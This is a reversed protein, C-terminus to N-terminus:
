GDVMQNETSEGTGVQPCRECNRGWAKGVTCCCVEQTLLTPLAHECGRAESVMRFCQGQEAPSESLLLCFLKMHFCDAKISCIPIGNEFSHKIDNLNVSRSSCLPFFYLSPTSFEGVCRNRDLVMGPKCSCKFSGLTNLCDGNQCVGQM